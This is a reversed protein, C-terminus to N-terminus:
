VSRSRSRSTPRWRSRSRTRGSPTWSSRSTVAPRRRRARRWSVGRRLTVSADEAPVEGGEPLVRLVRGTVRARRPALQAARSLVVPEGAIADVEIEDPDFGPHTFRLTYRVGGRVRLEFRGSGAVEVAALLPTTDDLPVLTVTAHDLSYGAPPKLTGRVEGTAQQAAPTAPDFPNTPQVRTDCAFVLLVSATLLRGRM